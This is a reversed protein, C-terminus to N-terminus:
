TIKKLNTCRQKMIIAIHLEEHRVFPSRHKITEAMFM